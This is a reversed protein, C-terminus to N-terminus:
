KDSSDDGTTSDTQPLPPSHPRVRVQQIQQQLQLKQTYDLHMAPRVRSPLVLFSTVTEPQPNPTGKLNTIDRRHNTTDQLARRQQLAEYQKRVTQRRETLMSALPAEFSLAQPVNFKTGTQSPAEEQQLQQEEEAAMEEEQLTDFLEELLENVERKTIQVARDTRYDELDPEDPDDLFNYEPDDDDDAEEENDPTMLSQLWKTWHRDEERQSEYMDPTIDPALLEAELQGLPVNVLRLKSRTRYALCGEDAVGGGGDDDDDDNDAKGDLPQNYTYSCDLEEEVANLRELFSSEPASLLHQPALSSTTVQERLHGPCRQLPEDTKQDALPQSNQHMRPPSALSEADSLFTEEATDEEEEEDPCYEEDSSDEDEELDIDVFQPPKVTNLASLSWNLPQGQQVAQKLRSRTMKPEFMPLDQTDRITAKMMAVVHEHTIVEHLIARVNSSTLNHQKSKRDLDIDLRGLEDDSSESTEMTVVEEAMVGGGSVPPRIEERRDKTSSGTHAMSATQSKRDVRFVTADRAARLSKSELPCVDEEAPRRREM